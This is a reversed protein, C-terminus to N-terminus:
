EEGSLLVKELALDPEGCLALVKERVADRLRVAASFDSGDAQVSKGIHV